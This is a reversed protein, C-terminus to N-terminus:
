RGQSADGKQMKMRQKLVHGKSSLYRLVLIGGLGGGKWKKGGRGERSSQYIVTVAVQSNFLMQKSNCIVDFKILLEFLM